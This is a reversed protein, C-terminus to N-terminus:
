NKISDDKGLGWVSNKDGEKGGKSRTYFYKPHIRFFGRHGDTQPGDTPGDMPEDVPGEHDAQRGIKFAILKGKDILIFNM